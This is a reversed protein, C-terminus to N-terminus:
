TEPVTDFAPAPRSSRLVDVVARVGPQDDWAELPVRVRRRWNPREETTGPVNQPGEEGWCDEINAVVVAAEGRAAVAIMGALVELDAADDGEVVPAPLGLRHRVTDRVWGRREAETAAQEDDLLGLDARDAIDTGRWFARFTATDHTNVSAVTAAPPTPIPGGGLADYVDFQSVACGLVGHASMAATVEPPVTGLNEGVVVAGTRAAELCIVALLEELPYRVYVGRKPGVEPRVWYLRLLGLIHDIRLLGAHRLHHRICDRVYRHGQERSREPHIPPFGWDQGLSFFTDPPAGTSVGPVFLDGEQWVDFGDPHCGLPLDLALLQGRASLVQQLGALQRDMTWQAFLHFRVEAPDGDTPLRSPWRRFDRGHRQGAARFWAYALVDPHADLWAQYGADAGAAFFREAAAAILPRRDSWVQAHDVLPGGPERLADAGPWGRVDAFAENWLRRSVPNYPSNDAPPDLFTALMPLTMVAQGGQAHLWDFADRLDGLDGMGRTRGTRLAYTPVFIGWRRERGAPARWAVSPAAIVHARRDGVELLHYGLPLREDAVPRREVVRAALRRGDELVLEAASAGGAAGGHGAEGGPRALVGDWAITVPEVLRAARVSRVAGLVADADAPGEIDIGWRQLTALLDEDAVDVTQGDQATFSPFAGIEEALERLGSV